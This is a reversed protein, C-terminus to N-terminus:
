LDFAIQFSFQVLPNYFKFHLQFTHLITSDDSQIFLRFHTAILLTNIQIYETKLNDPLLQM